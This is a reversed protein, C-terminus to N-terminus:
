IRRTGTEADESVRDLDRASESPKSRDFFPSFLLPSSIDDKLLCRPCHEIAAARSSHFKSGCRKCSFM